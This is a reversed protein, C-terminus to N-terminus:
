SGKVKRSHRGNLLDLKCTRVGGGGGRAGGEGRKKRPNYGAGGMGRPKRRSLREGGEHSQHAPFALNRGPFIGAESEVKVVNFNNDNLSVLLAPSIPSKLTVLKFVVSSENLRASLGPNAAPDTYVCRKM